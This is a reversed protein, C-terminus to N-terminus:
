AVAERLEAARAYVSMRHAVVAESSHYQRVYDWGRSAMAERRAPHLVLSRLVDYLSEETAQEYPLAGFRRLMEAETDPAAGAVVPMGMAWCELANQGYGLQLQDVLIDARAKTWLCRQWRQREVLTLAVPYDAALRKVAEIVAETSKIERDTPAHVIRITKSPMYNARRLRTLNVIDVPNPAWEVRDPALLWLDLTSVLGVAGFERLRSLDREPHDRFDGGHWTMVYPKRSQPPLTAWGNEIREVTLWNNQCHVVDAWAWVQALRRYNWALDKPYDIYNNSSVMSRYSWGPARVQDFAVKQGYSIGATDAGMNVSFVRM